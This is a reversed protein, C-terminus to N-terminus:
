RNVVLWQDTMSNHFGAETYYRKVSGRDRLKKLGVNISKLLEASRTYKKSIAYHFTDNLYVKMGPIPVLEVGDFKYTMDGRKFSILTFDFRQKEVSKTIYKWSKSDHLEKLNLSELAQWDISLGKDTIATLLPLDSSKISLAKINEPSTYLGAFYEGLPIVADTMLIDDPYPSVFSSPMVDSGVVMKGSRLHVIYQESRDSMTTLMLPSHFGGLEMAQQLLIIDVVFRDIEVGAQSFDDVDIPSRGDLFQHYSDLRHAPIPLSIPEADIPEDAIAPIVLLALCSFLLLRTCNLQCSNVPFDM